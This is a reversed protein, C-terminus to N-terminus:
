DEAAGHQEDGTRHEGLSLPASVIGGALVDEPVSFVRFASGAGAAIRDYREVIARREELPKVLFKHHLLLVPAEEGGGFPSGCHITTRGGMKEKTGLRTQHDPFLARNVIYRTEDIWLHARPFKWLDHQLYEGNALWCQMAHSCSEDDDLRLVYEGRCVRLVDDHVSELYGASHVGIITGPKEVQRIVTDLADPGDAGIVFQAGLQEALTGADNLFRIAFPEAKTVM